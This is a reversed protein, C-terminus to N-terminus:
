RQHFIHTRNLVKQRKGEITRARRRRQTGEERAEFGSMYANNVLDEDAEPEARRFALAPRKREEM